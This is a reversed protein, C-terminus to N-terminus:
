DGDSLHRNLWDEQTLFSIHATRVDNMAVCPKDRETHHHRFGCKEQVRRSKENGDDYVCWVRRCKHEQFAYRLLEEAAEPILGKGWYPKGIWYGLEAEHPQTPINVNQMLGISGVPLGTDKLVVAYTGDASLINRIIDRSNEISTHVPWGAAPGVDPDCAYRYLEEADEEKWPRLILRKTVLTM